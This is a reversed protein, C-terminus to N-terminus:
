SGVSAGISLLAQELSLLMILHNATQFQKNQLRAQITDGLTGANPWTGVKWSDLLIGAVTGERGDFM